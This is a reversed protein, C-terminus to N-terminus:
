RFHAAAISKVTGSCPDARASTTLSCNRKGVCATAAYAQFTGDNCSGASFTPCSGGPTGFFATVADIVGNECVLSMTVTNRETNVGCFPNSPSPSGLSLPLVAFFISFSLIGYRCMKLSM